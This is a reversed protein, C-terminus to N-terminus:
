LLDEPRFEASQSAPAAPIAAETLLEEAENSCRRLVRAQAKAEADMAAAAGIGAAVMEATAIATEPRPVGPVIAAPAMARKWADVIM